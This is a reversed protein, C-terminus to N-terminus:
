SIVSDCAHSSACVGGAQRKWPIPILVRSSLFVTCVTLLMIDRAKMYIDILNAVINQKISQDDAVLCLM